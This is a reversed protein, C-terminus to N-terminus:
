SGKETLERYRKLFLGEAETMGMRVIRALDPIVRKTQSWEWSCLKMLDRRETALAIQDAYHVEDPMPWDLGFKEAVARLIPGEILNIGLQYKVPRAVDSLYAEAADHLLAWLQCDDPVLESVLLSHQAVSYHYKCAGTFRCILSLHHAIDRIDVDDAHPALVWFRRGSYTQIWHPDDLRDPYM